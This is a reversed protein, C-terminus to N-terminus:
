GFCRGGGELARLAEVADVIHRYLPNFSEGHTDIGRREMEAVMGKAAELVRAEAQAKQAIPTALATEAIEGAKVKTRNKWQDYSEKGPIDKFDYWKLAERLKEIAEQQETIHALLHWIDGDQNFPYRKHIANLEENTLM